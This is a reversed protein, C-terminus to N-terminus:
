WHSNRLGSPRFYKEFTIVLKKSLRLSISNAKVSTYKLCLGNVQPNAFSHCSLNKKKLGISAVVGNSARNLSLIWCFLIKNIQVEYYIQVQPFLFCLYLPGEEQVAWTWPHGKVTGLHCARSTSGLLKWKQYYCWPKSLEKKNSNSSM